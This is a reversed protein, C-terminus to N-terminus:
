CFDSVQLVKLGPVGPLRRDNTVLTRCRMALAATVQLADPTRMGTAARLRAAARLQDTSVGVL